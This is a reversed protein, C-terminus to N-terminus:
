GHDPKPKGQQFKQVVNMLKSKSTGPQNVVDPGPAAAAPEPPVAQEIKSVGTILEVCRSIFKESRGEGFYGLEFAAKKHADPVAASQGALTALNPAKSTGPGDKEKQKKEPKDDAIDKASKDNASPISCPTKVVPPMNKGHDTAPYIISLFSSKPAGGESLEAKLRLARRNLINDLSM